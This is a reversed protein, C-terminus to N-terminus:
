HGSKVAYWTSTGPPNGPCVYNGQKKASGIGKKGRSGSFTCGTDSPGQTVSMAFAKGTSTWVGTDSASPISFTHNTFVDIDGFDIGGAVFDYIQGVGGARMHVSAGSKVNHLGAGATGGGFGLSSMAVVAGVV